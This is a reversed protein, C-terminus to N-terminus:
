QLRLKVDSSHKTYEHNFPNELDNILGIQKTGPVGKELATKCSIYDDPNETDEKPRYYNINNKNYYDAR